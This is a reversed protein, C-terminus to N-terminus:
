NELLSSRISTLNSTSVAIVRPSLNVFLVLRANVRAEYETSRVGSEPSREGSECHVEVDSMLFSARSSALRFILLALRKLQMKFKFIKLSTNELRVAFHQPSFNSSRRNTSPPSRTTFTNRTSSYDASPLPPPFLLPVDRVSTLKHLAGKSASTTRRRSSFM